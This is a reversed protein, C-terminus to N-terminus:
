RAFYAVLALLLILVLPGIWLLPLWKRLREQREPDELDSKAPDM